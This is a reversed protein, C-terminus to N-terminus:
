RFIQWVLLYLWIKVKTYVTFFAGGFSIFKTSLNPIRPNLTNLFIVRGRKCLSSKKRAPHSGDACPHKEISSTWFNYVNLKFSPTSVSHRQKEESPDSKNKTDRTDQPSSHEDTVRWNFRIGESRFYEKIERGTFGMTSEKDYVETHLHLLPMVFQQLLHPISGHFFSQSGSHMGISVWINM